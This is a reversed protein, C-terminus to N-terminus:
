LDPNATEKQAEDSPQSPAEVDTVPPSSENQPEIEATSNALTNAHESEDETNDQEEFTFADSLNVAIFSKPLKVRRGLTLVRTASSAM